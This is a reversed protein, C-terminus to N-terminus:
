KEELYRRGKETLQYRQKKSKENEKDTFELLELDRLSNLYKRKNVSQYSLGLTEEILVRGKQPSKMCSVLVQVHKKGLEDIKWTKNVSKKKGYREKKEEVIFQTEPIDGLKDFLWEIYKDLKGTLYYPLSLLHFSKGNQTKLEDLQIQGAYLRIAFHLPSKDMFVQLSKLTGKAGSKVEIPIIKGQYVHLFDIEADSQKKQRIWFHLKDLSLTKQALLEQGTLHEILTGKYVNHLDQTGIIDKQLGLFYNILGTDLFQIRPTKKQDPELPLTTGTVPYLIHMLYTKELARLVEGIEKSSYNSNGFGTLSTRSGAKKLTQYICFRILQLQHDSKAYKEADQIYSQILSDYLPGLATIDKNKRYHQIIEPMGGILAYIHFSELLSSHAYNEIPLKAYEELLQEEGMATLYEEFSVPRLVKYEVRGVPFTVNKGLLTELMSGASIVALEPLDEKFYRLINVAEPMEQIEDIFLLTDNVLEKKMRHHLLIKAFLQHIDRFNEFFSRDQASELNLHIYQKFQKGFEDVLTTKGVQRAGRIVLPKRFSDTRWRELEKIMRRYFM